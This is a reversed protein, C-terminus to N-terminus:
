GDEKRYRLARELLAALEDDYLDDLRAHPALAEAVVADPQAASAFRIAELRAHAVRGSGGVGRGVHTAIWEADRARFRRPERPAEVREAAPPADGHPTAQVPTADPASEHEADHGPTAHEQAHLKEMRAVLERASMPRPHEPEVPPAASPLVVAAPGSQGNSKQPPAPQGQRAQEERRRQRRGGRRGRSM